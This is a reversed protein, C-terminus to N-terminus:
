RSMGNDRSWSMSSRDNQSIGQRRTRTSCHSWRTFCLAVDRCKERLFGAREEPPRNLAAQFLQKAEEWRRLEDTM